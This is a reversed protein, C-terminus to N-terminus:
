SCTSDTDVIPGFNFNAKNRTRHVQGEAISDISNALYPEFRARYPIFFVVRQSSSLCQLKYTQLMIHHRITMRKRYIKVKLGIEKRM